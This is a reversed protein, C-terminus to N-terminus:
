HLYFTQQEFRNLHSIPCFFSLAVAWFGKCKKIRIYSQTLISGFNVNTNILKLRIIVATEDDVSSFLARFGINTLTKGNSYQNFDSACVWISATSLFVPPPYPLLRFFYSCLWISCSIDFCNFKKGSSMNLICHFIIILAERWVFTGCM